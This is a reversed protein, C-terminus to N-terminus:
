NHTSASKKLTFATVCDLLDQFESPFDTQLIACAHDRECCTYKAQLPAPILSLGM